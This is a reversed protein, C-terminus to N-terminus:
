HEDIVPNVQHRKNAFRGPLKLTRKETKVLEAFIISRILTM